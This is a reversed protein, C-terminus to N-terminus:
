GLIKNYIDIQTQIVLERNNDNLKRKRSSQSLTIALEKNKFIKEVLAACQVVDDPNYFLAEKENNAQEPMAGSFACVTPCGVIMAEAFALCYSEVFSPVVCVNANQLEKIIQDANLPGLYVINDQLGLKNILRQLYISYGDTLKNGVNMNGAVRLQVNPYNKKIYFISQILRHYGKYSVAASTSSFIIPNTKIESYQWPKCDYFENRLLLRTHFLRSKPVIYNLSNKVWESQYSINEFYHLYEIEKEGRMFFINRKGFLSRWPMIIEKLHICKLLDKIGLGGYYFNHCRSLLGQIDLLKKTEINNLAFISAWCGETGWIHILDPKEREIIKIVINQILNSATQGNNYLKTKPLIWQTIGNINTKQIRKENGLAINIIEYTGTSTIGDALPQLWGGTASIKEDKTFLVNSLWLIRKM